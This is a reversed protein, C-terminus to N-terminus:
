DRFNYILAGAALGKTLLGLRGSTSRALKTLAMLMAYSDPSKALEQTFSNCVGAFINYDKEIGRASKGIYKNYIIAEPKLVIWEQATNTYTQHKIESLIMNLTVIMQPTIKLKVDGTFTSTEEYKTNAGDIFAKFTREIKSPTHWLSQISDLSGVADFALAAAMLWPFRTGKATISAQKFGALVKIILPM